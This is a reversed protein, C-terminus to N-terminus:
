QKLEKKHQDTVCICSVFVHSNLRLEKYEFIHDINLSINDSVHFVHTKNKLNMAM